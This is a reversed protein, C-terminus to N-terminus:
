FRLHPHGVVWYDSLYTFRRATTTLLDYVERGWLRMWEAADVTRENTQPGDDPDNLRILNAIQQPTLQGSIPLPYPDPQPPVDLDSAM